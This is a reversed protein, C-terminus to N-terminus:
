LLGLKNNLKNLESEIEESSKLTLLPEIQKQIEACSINRVINKVAPILVSNM